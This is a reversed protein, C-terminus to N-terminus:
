RPKDERSPPAPANGQKEKDTPIPKAQAPEPPHVNWPNAFNMAGSLNGSLWTEITTISAEIIKAMDREEDHSFTGLVQDIAEGGNRDRGIGIRLRPFDPGFHGIISKLGNHGGSSGDARVRLKGFPLDLDDVVVLVDRVDVKYFSAAIRMPAGSANMFTQPEILLANKERVLTQLADDKKKWAPANWRRALEDLVIFGINHRTRM